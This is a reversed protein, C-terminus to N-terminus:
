PRSRRRMFPMVPLEMLVPAVVIVVVVVIILILLEAPLAAGQQGTPDIDNVPNNNAYAYLDPGDGEGEPDRSLWHGSNPDYARFWTLNLGSPQHVYMGAYQFDSPISTTGVPIVVGYPDYDYRAEINGNGDTMERVSGLHDRTFYYNSGSIQEGQPYFRKTISDGSNREEAVNSGIWVFQKTSTVTGNATEVIKVRRGRGDYTFQTSNGNTYNIATLEGRADWQYTQGNGNNVLNGDPDYLPTTAAGSPVVVDWKNTVAYGNVNTAVISITTTGPSIATKGVFNDNSNVTAPNGNVTVSGFKNLKGAVELEGGASVGTIENLNSVGTTDVSLGNQVTTRNGASDYGYEYQALVNQSSDTKTAGILQDDQDYGYTWTTPSNSGTQQQWTTIEGDPTYNYDFKSLIATGALNTIDTLRYDQTAGTQYTYNTSLSNQNNTISQM